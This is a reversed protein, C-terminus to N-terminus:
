YRRRRRNGGKQAEMGSAITKNRATVDTKTSVKAVIM